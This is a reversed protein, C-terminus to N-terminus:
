CLEEAPKRYLSFCVQRIARPTGREMNLAFAKRRLYGIFFYLYPLKAIAYEYFEFGPWEFELSTTNNVTATVYSARPLVLCLASIM